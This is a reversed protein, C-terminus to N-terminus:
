SGLMGLYRRRRAAHMSVIESEAWGYASALLHIERLLRVAWANLEFWLISVIDFVVSVAQDCKVCRWRMQRDADPDLQAMRESLREVVEAPLAACNISEDCRRADIVCREVLMAEAEDVHACRSAAALDLSNPLRFRLDCGGACLTFEADTPPPVPPMLEAVDVKVELVEGCRTCPEVVSLARGFLACRWAALSADRRGISFQALADEEHGPEALALLTVAWQQPGQAHGAEWAELLGSTHFCRM